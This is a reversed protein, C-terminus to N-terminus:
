LSTLRSMKNVLVQFQFENTFKTPEPWRIRKQDVLAASDALATASLDVEVKQLRLPAPAAFAAAAAALPAEETPVDRKFNFTISKADVM